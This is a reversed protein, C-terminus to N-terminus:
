GKEVREVYEGTRTDIRIRDGQNIFLPVKLKLGNELEAPKYINTASNGKVGPTTSEVKLVIKPPIDVSLAKDEWFLVDVNQGEKVFSLDDGLVSVPIEIQECSDPDMFTARSQDSFLYQLPRKITAIEEVKYSSNLTRQQQEGTKLNRLALKVNAGGRGIKQHRYKEVKFPVGSLLFSTGKKLETAEIM